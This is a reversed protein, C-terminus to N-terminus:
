LLNLLGVPVFDPEDVAIERKGVVWLGLRGGLSRKAGVFLSLEPLIVIPDKLVLAGEGGLGVTLDGRVKLEVRACEAPAEIGPLEPLRDLLVVPLTLGMTHGPRWREEDVAPEKGPRLREIGEPDNDVVLDAVLWRPQRLSM